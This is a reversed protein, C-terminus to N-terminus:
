AREEAVAEQEVAEDVAEVAALTPERVEGAPEAPAVAASTAAAAAPLGDLAEVGEPPSAEDPGCLDDISLTKWSLEDSMEDLRYLEPKISLSADQADSTSLQLVMLSVRELSALCRHMRAVLRERAIDIKDFGALQEDLTKIVAQYEARIVSDKVTAIKGELAERRAELRPRATGDVSGEIECWRRALLILRQTTESSVRRAEDLIALDKGEKSRRNLRGIIEDYLTVGQQALEAMDGKLSERTESWLHKVEDRDLTLRGVTGGLSLFFGLTAGTAADQAGPQGLLEFIPSATLFLKTSVFLGIVAMLGYAVARAPRPAAEPGWILGAGIGALAAGTLAATAGLASITAVAGALAGLAGGAIAGVAIKNYDSRLLGAAAGIGAGTLAMLCAYDFGEVMWTRAVLGLLAGAAGAITWYITNRQFGTHDDFHLQGLM